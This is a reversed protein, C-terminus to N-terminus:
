IARGSPDDSHIQGPSFSYSPSSGRGLAVKDVVSRVHGPKTDFRPRAILTVPPKFWPLTLQHEQIPHLQSIQEVNEIKLITRGTIVRTIVM